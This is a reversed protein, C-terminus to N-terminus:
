RGQMSASLADGTLNFGLVAATIAIGPFLVLWWGARLFGEADGALTGWTITSPDGLGIFGLGAEILLVQGMMLGLLVLVTPLVQPVLVHRIIHLRSAGLAESALVYDLQRTVLVEGRVVRALLPWSTLGLVLILRTTGPGFVAIVVAVLFFRPLVQFAETVRMLIDDAFGGVYGAITGVAVGCVAALLGVSLAILMSGRTGFVVGSFLDRGIADTGMLHAFSPEALSPGTILFPNFAALWPAFIAVSIITMM